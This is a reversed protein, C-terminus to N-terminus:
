SIKHILLLGTNVLILLMIKWCLRQFSKISYNEIILSFFLFKMCVVIIRVPYLMVLRSYFKNMFFYLVGGPICEDESNNKDIGSCCIVDYKNRAQRKADLAVVVVLTTIQLFFNFVVALAAFISFTHVAPM